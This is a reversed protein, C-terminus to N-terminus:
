YIWRIAFHSQGGGEDLRWGHDLRFDVTESWGLRLGLGTSTASSAGTGGTRHLGVWGHDVFGLFRFGVGDWPQILPSMLEVSGSWGYDGFVGREDAGRVSRAGGIAFQEAPLLRTDSWQAAGRVQLRLDAPLEWWAGADLRAIQYGSEALPDYARFDRDDNGDVLGGPSFVWGLDVSAAGGKWTRELGYGFTAQLLRVTGPAVATSGFLAFQDTSKLDVGSTIRQQWRGVSPLWFKQKLGLAWSSGQNRTVIGGTLSQVEVDALSATLETAQGAQHWPIEWAVSHAQLSRAPTGMVAQWALVHEGPTMGTVAAVLRDEGLVRTGGDDYGLMVRWPRKEELVIVVDATAPLDGPSVLLRPTRFATRGLWALQRDLEGRRIVEGGRLRMGTSLVDRRGYKPPLVGVNGYRGEEVVIHVAGDSFDQEPVDLLMVPYGEADYHILIEDAISELEALWLGDELYPAIKAALTAPSPLDVGPGLALAGHEAAVGAIGPRELVVRGIGKGLFEGQEAREAREPSEVSSVPGGEPLLPDVGPVLQGASRETVLLVSLAIGLIQRWKMADLM